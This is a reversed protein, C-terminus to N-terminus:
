KGGAAVVCRFGNFDWVDWPQGDYRRASRFGAARNYNWSGGRLVYSTGTAPGAPDRDIRRAYFDPSYYDSCWELVNGAMDLAGYPSAGAPFSGAPAPRELESSVSNSCRAPDWANGWPYVRGDTGRAAKEFQAETPLTAHAWKAYASAQEWTVNVMPDNDNWGWYPESPMFRSTADCFAQYEGVTVENKYIWFGKLSVVHEPNDSNRDQGDGMIFKGAPVWVM